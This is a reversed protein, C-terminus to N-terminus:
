NHEHNSERKICEVSWALHKFLNRGKAPWTKTQHTNELDYKQHSNEIKSCAGRRFDISATDTASQQWMRLFLNNQDPIKSSVKLSNQSNLCKMNETQILGFLTPALSNEEGLDEYNFYNDESGMMLNQGYWASEDGPQKGCGKKGGKKLHEFDRLCSMLMLDKIVPTKRGCDTGSVLWKESWRPHGFFLLM